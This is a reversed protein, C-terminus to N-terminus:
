TKAKGNGPTDRTVQTYKPVNRGTLRTKNDTRGSQERRHISITSIQEKKKIADGCQARANIQVRVHAYMCAMPPPVQAENRTSLALVEIEHQPPPTENAYSRSEGRRGRDRRKM